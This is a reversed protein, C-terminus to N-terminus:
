CVRVLGFPTVFCRVPRVPEADAGSIPINSYQFMHHHVPALAIVFSLSRESVCVSNQFLFAMRFTSRLKRHWQLFLVAKTASKTM